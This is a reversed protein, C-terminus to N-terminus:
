KKGKFLGFFGRAEPKVAAAKAAKVKQAKQEVKEINAKGELAQVDHPNFKLAQNFHVKAMTLQNQKLYIKGLLSHCRADQPALKLADRVERIANQFSNKVIFEEARRCYQKVYSETAEPSKFNGTLSNSSQGEHATPSASSASFPATQEESSLAPPTTLQESTFYTRPKSTTNSQEERRLLYVLNLESLQETLQFAQKLNQYQQDALQKVAQQYSAQLDGSQNLAKAVDSELVIEDKEAMIRQGVYRLLIEYENRDRDQSFLKYAPNVLKSLFESALQRSETEDRSDPHLTKAIGLYRKRIEGPPAGIPIGLIAYYDTFDFKALGKCIQLSM